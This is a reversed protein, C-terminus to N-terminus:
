TLVTQVRPAALLDGRESNWMTEDRFMSSAVLEAPIRDDISVLEEGLREGVERAATTKGVNSSGGILVVVM